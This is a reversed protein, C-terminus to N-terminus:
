IAMTKLMNKWIVKIFVIKLMHLNVNKATFKEKQQHDEWFSLVEKIKYLFIDSRM